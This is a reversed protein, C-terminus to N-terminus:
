IFCLLFVFGIFLDFSSVDRVFFLDDFFWVRGVNVLVREM